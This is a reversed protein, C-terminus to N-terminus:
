SASAPRCGSRQARQDVGKGIRERLDGRDHDRGVLPPRTSGESRGRSTRVAPILRRRRSAPPRAVPAPTAIPPTAPNPDPRAMAGISGWVTRRDREVAHVLRPDRRRGLLAELEGGEVDQGGFRAASCPRSRLQVAAAAASSWPCASRHGPRGAIGECRRDVGTFREPQARGPQGQGEAEPRAQEAARDSRKPRPAEPRRGRASRGGNAWSWSSGVILSPSRHTWAQASSGRTAKWAMRSRARIPRPSTAIRQDCSPKPRVDLVVALWAVGRLRSPKRSPVFLTWPSSRASSPWGVDPDSGPVIRGPHVAARVEHDAPDPHPDLGPIADPRPSWSAVIPRWLSLPAGSPPMWSCSRTSRVATSRRRCAPSGPETGVDPESRGVVFPPM